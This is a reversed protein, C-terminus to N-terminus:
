VPEEPKDASTVQQPLVLDKARVFVPVLATLLLTEVAVMLPDVPTVPLVLVLKEVFLGCLIILPRRDFCRQGGGPAIHGFGSAAQAYPPLAEVLM